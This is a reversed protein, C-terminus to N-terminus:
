KLFIITKPISFIGTNAGLDYSYQQEEGGSPVAQRKWLYLKQRVQGHKRKVWCCSMPPFMRIEYTSGRCGGRGGGKNFRPRVRNQFQRSSGVYGLITEVEWISPDHAHM